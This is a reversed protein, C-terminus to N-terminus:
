GNEKITLTQNADLPGIKTETKGSPWVIEIEDVQSSEGLGFYLPHLSHSLYGSVGDYVQLLRRDGIKLVVRAGLADRNSEGGVLKIKLFNIKKKDSLDSLLVMPESNFESTVIDLDGDDDLDFIASSRSGLASWVVVKGTRDKCYRNEVDLEDADLEFWPKIRQGNARPEIGVIFEADAFREGQENILVSNVGYRYPFCMSSTLFADQFGDANLDAVSLGWPWYNEAGIKDSIESFGGKGDAQYFANGFISQGNSRLVEEGFQMRSKMKEREPGVDESMDSHMDTLFLDVALDNNFDFAKVGMAGWPTKPFVDRSKKEFRKGGVNEYYEDHGQMSLVYLDPWGDNNGDIPTADGSWGLDVLNMESSVDKFKAGGLNRYLISAENLQPNLHGLFANKVGLYYRLDSDAAMSSTSDHRILEYDDTTFKGVNAVFLDLFGDRDFDFFVAGSSHGSYDLGSSSTADSFKGKGDNIFLVNGNRITTVFLDPDGDNDVDAFASSVSIRDALGVGSAETWDEFKGNGLNRWLENRTAQSTFYLDLNGDSDVDALCVGNGHDYHNVELRWRQEDVIQPDYTIGSELRADRFGFDVFAKIEEKTKVQALRRDEMWNTTAIEPPSALHTMEKGTFMERYQDTPAMEPLVFNVVKTIKKLSATDASDFYGRIRMRRDVVAFFSSHAIPMETNEKDEAVALKFGDECLDWLSQRDGTLFKWYRNDAHHSEAFRALVEPRDTNPDVTFSVFRMGDLAPIRSEQQKFLEQLQHMKATQEPCITKCSTFIFNAIWVHGELDSSGFANGDQDVLQFGPVKGVVPALEPLVFQEQKKASPGNENKETQKEQPQPKTCGAFQSAGWGLLLCFLSFKIAVHQM